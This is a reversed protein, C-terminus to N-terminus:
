LGPFVRTPWIIADQAPGAALWALAPEEIQSGGSRERYEDPQPPVSSHTDTALSAILEVINM